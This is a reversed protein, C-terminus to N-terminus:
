QQVEWTESFFIMSKIFVHSFIIIYIHFAISFIVVNKISKILCRCQQHMSNSYIINENYFM